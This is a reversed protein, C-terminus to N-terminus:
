PLPSSPRTEKHKAIEKEARRVEKVFEDVKKFDKKFRVPQGEARVENTKTCSDAGAPSLRLLAEYVNEPSLGGALILPINSQHVLEKAIEWDATRGTIGIYGEVPEKGLWTDTLFVDTVPELMKGLKLTPFGQQEVKRPIPLSRMIGIEPFKEKVESQLKILKEMPLPIGGSDTLSDCFHVYHPRYYDISRYLLEKDQFLPIFSNRTGTGDSLRVVERLSSMRWNEKSLLVSGIHDVGLEICKEADKPAQIEYIQVIMNFKDGHSGKIVEKGLSLNWRGKTPKRM